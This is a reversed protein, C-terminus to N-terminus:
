EDKPFVVGAREFEEELDTKPVRRVTTQVPALLEEVSKPSPLDSRKKQDITIPRSGGVGSESVKNVYTKNLNLVIVNTTQRSNDIVKPGTENVKRSAKNALAAASLAFRPDRNYALTQMVVELAKTEIADWGEDRDIQAQIAEEAVEAYKKKYEETGRCAMVQEVSLLLVDAIQSDTIGRAALSGVRARTVADVTNEPHVKTVEAPLNSTM